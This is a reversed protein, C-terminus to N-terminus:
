PAEWMGPMLESIAKPMLLHTANLVTGLIKLHAIRDLAQRVDKAPTAGQRIVLVSADALSALPVADTTTLIGPVDLIVRDYSKRMEDIFRALEEGRAVSARREPALRGAPLVALKGEWVPILADQRTSEGALVEALGHRRSISAADALGPHWFNAEVLAVTEETDSAIVAALTLACTTVGEGSLAATLACVPPLQGDAALDTALERLPAVISGPLITLPRGSTITPVIPPTRPGDHPPLKRDRARRKM